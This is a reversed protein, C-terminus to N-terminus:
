MSHACRCHWLVIVAIEHGRVADRQIDNKVSKFFVHTNCRLTDFQACQRLTM